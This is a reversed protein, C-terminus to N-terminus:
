KVEEESENDAEKFDFVKVAKHKRILGPYGIMKPKDNILIDLPQDTRRHLKIADHVEMNILDNLTIKTNGLVAQVPVTVDKIHKHFLTRQEPSLDDRRLQNSARFVTTSLADELLSYPYCLNFVAKSDYVSIQYFVVIAPEMASIIQTNEPNSEYSHHVVSLQIYPEWAEQLESYVRNMLRSMVKEEIATMERRFTMDKSRSGSQKEVSFICFRPDLEIIAEGGMEEITFIFLASPSAISQLFESYVVQDIALLQIDVITRLTNTFAV